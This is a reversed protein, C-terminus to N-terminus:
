SRGNARARADRANLRECTDIVAQCFDVVHWGELRCQWTVVGLRENIRTMGVIVHHWIDAERDPPMDDNAGSRAPQRAGIEIPELQASM